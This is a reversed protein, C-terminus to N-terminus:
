AVQEANQSIAGIMERLKAVFQNFHNATQAVEDSGPVDVTKTLDGEGESIDKLRGVITNLPQSISRGILFAALLAFGCSGFGVLMMMWTGSQVAAAAKRLNAAQEENALRVVEAIAERHRDGIPVLHARVENARKTDGRHLAPILDQEVTAFYQQATQHLPGTMVTKMNGEPVKKVEQQYAEEFKSGAERLQRILEERRDRDSEFLAKYVLLRAGVINVEPPAVNAILHQDDSITRYLPGNVEVTRLTSFTVLAFIGLALM